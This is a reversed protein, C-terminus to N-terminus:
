GSDRAMAFSERPNERSFREPSLRSADFVDSQGSVILDAAIQGYAPSTEIGAGGQGALWFFGPRDPDQGIVPAGDSAFTRLGSWRSRISRPLISPALDRLRELSAAITEEDPSPDCAEMSVQDMPSLMMEGAEPVFYIDHPDSWVMPWSSFELGGPVGFTFLSRRKPQLMIPRAGAMVGVRSAWAGAANVVLGADIERDPLRVGTIRDGSGMMEVVEAGLALQAGAAKAHRLYAQLIGHVDLRGDQPAYLAGAMEPYTVAPVMSRVQPPTILEFELGRARLEDARSGLSSFGDRDFLSLVGVSNLPPHEAFGEPPSRWFRSGLIKLDLVVENEDYESISAASRGTAHVALQKERELILVKGIGARSLFYALSAAAIGGGVVVVDFQERKPM